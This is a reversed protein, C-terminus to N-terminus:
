GEPLANLYAELDATLILRKGSVEGTEEDKKTRRAKLDGTRIATDLHTASLGTAEAAEKVSYALKM